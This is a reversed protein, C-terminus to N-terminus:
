LNKDMFHRCCDLLMGRWSFRPFDHIELCPIKTTIVGKKTPLLQRLTQIGRMIGKPTTAEISLNDVSINLFFEEEKLGEKKLLEITNGNGNLELNLIEKLYDSEAYFLSDVILNTNYSLSFVDDNIELKQPKPILNVEQVKQDTCAFLLCLIPIFYRM